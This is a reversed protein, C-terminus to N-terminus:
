SAYALAPADTVPALVPAVPAVDQTEDAAATHWEARYLSLAEYFRQWLLWSREDQRGEAARVLDWLVGSTAYLVPLVGAADVTEPEILVDVAEALPGHHELIVVVNYGVAGSDVSLAVMTQAAFAHEVVVPKGTRTIIVPASSGVKGDDRPVALAQMAFAWYRALEEDADRGRQQNHAECVIPPKWRGGLSAAIVHEYSDADHDCYLCKLL